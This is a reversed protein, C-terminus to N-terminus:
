QRVEEVLWRLYTRADEQTFFSFPRMQQQRAAYSMPTVMELVAGIIRRVSAAANALIGRDRLLNSRGTVRKGSPRLRGRVTGERGTSRAGSTERTFIDQAAGKYYGGGRKRISRGARIRKVGGQAPVTVGDTKRTYQDAFWPWTVGRFTGGQRLTRFMRATQSRHHAHARKFFEVPQRLRQELRDFRVRLKGLDM